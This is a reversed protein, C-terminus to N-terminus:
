DLIQHNNLASIIQLSKSEQSSLNSVHHKAISSAPSAIESSCALLSDNQCKACLSTASMYQQSFCHFNTTAVNEREDENIKDYKLSKM